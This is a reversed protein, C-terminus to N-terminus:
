NIGPSAARIRIGSPERAFDFLDFSPDDGSCVSFDLSALCLIARSRRKALAASEAKKKVDHGRLLTYTPVHM